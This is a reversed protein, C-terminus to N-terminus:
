ILLQKKGTIRPITKNCINSVHYGFVGLTFGHQCNWLTALRQYLNKIEGKTDLLVPFGLKHKKLFPKVAEAGSEDVSIALLEFDEHKLEQYLNEM